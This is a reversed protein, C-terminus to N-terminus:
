TDKLLKSQQIFNLCQTAAAPGCVMHFFSFINKNLSKEPTEYWAFGEAEALDRSSTIRICNFQEQIM